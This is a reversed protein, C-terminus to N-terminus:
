IWEHMLINFTDVVPGYRVYVEARACGTPNVPLEKEPKEHQHFRFLHNQCQAAGQLQELLFLVADHIVGLVRAGSMRGLPLQELRYGTRAEQVGDVVARWAVSLSPHFILYQIFFYIFKLLSHIYFVFPLCSCRTQM